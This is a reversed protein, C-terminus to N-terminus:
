RFEESSFVETKSSFCRGILDWFTRSSLLRVASTLPEIGRLEVLRRVLAWAPVLM